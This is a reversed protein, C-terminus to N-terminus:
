HLVDSQGKTEKWSNFKEVNLVIQNLLSNLKQGLKSTRFEYSGFKMKSLSKYEKYTLMEDYWGGGHTILTKFEAETKGVSESSVVFHTGTIFVPDVVNIHFEIDVVYINEGGLKPNLLSFNKISFKKIEPLIVLDANFYKGVEILYDGTVSSINKGFTTVMKKNIENLQQPLPVIVDYKGTLLFKEVLLSTLGEELNWFFKIKKENVFKLVVILTRNDQSIESEICYCSIKLLICLFLILRTYSKHGNLLM